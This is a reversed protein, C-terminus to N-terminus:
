VHARGIESVRAEEEDWVEVLAKYMKMGILIMEDHGILEQGKEHDLGREATTWWIKLAELVLPHNRLAKRKAVNEPSYFDIAENVVDLLSPGADVAVATAAALWSSM